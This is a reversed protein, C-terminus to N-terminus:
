WWYVVVNYWRMCQVVDDSVDWVADYIWTQWMRTYWQVLYLVVCHMRYVVVSM